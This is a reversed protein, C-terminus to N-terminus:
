KDATVVSQVQNSIYTNLSRQADASKAKAATTFSRVAAVAQERANGTWDTALLKQLHADFLNAIMSFHRDVVTRLADLASTDVDVYDVTAVAPPSITSGNVSITVPQGGLSAAINSTSVRVADAIGGLDQNLKNAFDAALQGSKTKFDVANPGFYRVETVANVLQVLEARIADFKAQADTGYARVSQPNVRIVTM